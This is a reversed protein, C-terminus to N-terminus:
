CTVSKHTHRRIRTGTFSRSDSTGLIVVRFALATTSPSVFRSMFGLLHVFPRCPRRTRPLHPVRRQPPKVISLAHEIPVGVLMDRPKARGDSWFTEGVYYGTGRRIACLLKSHTPM